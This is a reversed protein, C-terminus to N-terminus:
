WRPGTHGSSWSPPPYARMFGTREAAGLCIARDFRDGRGVWLGDTQIWRWLAAVDCLLSLASDSVRIRLTSFMSIIVWLCWLHWDEPPCFVDYLTKGLETSADKSICAFEHICVFVRARNSAPGSPHRCMCVNDTHKWPKTNEHQAMERVDRLIYFFAIPSLGRSCLDSFARFSYIDFFLIQLLSHM